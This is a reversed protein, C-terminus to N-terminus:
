LTEIDPMDTQEDPVGGFKFNVNLAQGDAGTIQNQTLKPVFRESIKIYLEMAGKPDTEAIRDLWEELEEMKNDCLLAFADRIRVTIKNPEGKKRGANPVRTGRGPAFKGNDLRPQEPIQNEEM